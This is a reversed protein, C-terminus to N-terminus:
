IIKINHHRLSHM